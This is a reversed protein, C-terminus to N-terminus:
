AVKKRADQKALQQQIFDNLQYKERAEKSLYAGGRIEGQCCAHGCYCDFPQNMKWETSPYFFVLEDHPHLEKLAVLKMTTTNFFVNPECSHNIYQLFDPQLTIHKGSDIQVTLYTPEASITGASFDAIVEGPQYSTLTFLGNQGNSIQQRVEAIEHTSVIRYAPSNAPEM